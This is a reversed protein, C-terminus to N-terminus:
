QQGGTPPSGVGGQRKVLPCERAFHGVEDCVFCKVKQTKTPKDKDKKDKDRQKAKDKERQKEKQEREKWQLSLAAVQQKLEDVEDVQMWSDSAVQSPSHAPAVKGAAPPPLVSLGAEQMRERTIDELKALWEGFTVPPPQAGLLAYVLELPARKRLALVDRNDAEFTQPLSAKAVRVSHLWKHFAQLKGAEFRNGEMVQQFRTYAGTDDLSPCFTFVFAALFEAYAVSGEQTDAVERIRPMYAELFKACTVPCLSSEIWDVIQHATGINLSRAKAETSRKLYLLFAVCDTVGVKFTM